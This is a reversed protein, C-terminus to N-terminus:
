AKTAQVRILTEFFSHVYIKVRILKYGTGATCSDIM